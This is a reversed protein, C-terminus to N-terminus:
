HWPGAGKKEHEREALLGITVTPPPAARCFFFFFFFAVARALRRPRELGGLGFLLWRSSFFSPMYSPWSVCAWIMMCWVGDWWVGTCGGEGEWELPAAQPRGETAAARFTVRESLATSAPLADAIGGGQQGCHGYPDRYRDPDGALGVRLLCDRWTVLTVIPSGPLRIFFFMIPSGPWAIPCVGVALKTVGQTVRVIAPSTLFVSLCCTISKSHNTIICFAM